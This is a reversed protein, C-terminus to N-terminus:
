RGSGRSRRLPQAQKVRDRGERKAEYLAADARRALLEPTTREDPALEAIGFSVTIKITGSGTTPFNSDKITQRLRDAVEFGKVVNTEVLLVAFEDGGIRAVLDPSRIGDHM